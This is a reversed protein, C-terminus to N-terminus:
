KIEITQLRNSIGAWYKFGQKSEEFNFSIRLLTSMEHDRYKEKTLRKHVEAPTNIVYRDLVDISELYNHLRYTAHDQLYEKNIKRTAFM